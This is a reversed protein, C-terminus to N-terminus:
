TLLGEFAEFLESASPMEELVTEPALGLRNLIELGEDNVLYNRLEDATCFGASAKAFWVGINVVAAIADFADGRLTASPSPFHEIADTYSQPFNWRRSLEAGVTAYDYNLHKHELEFRLPSFPSCMADIEAMKQPMACHMVLQGIAHMLGATFAQEADQQGARKSLWRCTAATQLSYRWFSRLDMGEVAKYGGVLGASIVITRVTNFGLMMMAQNVTEVSRSRQYYASNATRLLKASLVPDSTLTNAISEISANEDNFSTILEQVIKPMAPLNQPKSFLDDLKM